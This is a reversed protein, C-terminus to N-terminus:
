THLSGTSLYQVFVSLYVIHNRPGCSICVDRPWFVYFIACDPLVELLPRAMNRIYLMGTNFLFSFLCRMSKLPWDYNEKEELRIKLSFRITLKANFINGYARPVLPWNIKSNSKSTKFKWFFGEFIQHIEEKSDLFRNFWM